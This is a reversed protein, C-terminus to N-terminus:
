FNPTQSLSACCDPIVCHLAEGSSQPSIEVGDCIRQSLAPAVALGFPMDISQFGELARYVASVVRKRLDESLPGM